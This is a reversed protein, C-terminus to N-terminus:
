QNQQLIFDINKKITPVGPHTYIEMDIKWRNTPSIRARFKSQIKMPTLNLSNKKETALISKSKQCFNIEIKDFIM